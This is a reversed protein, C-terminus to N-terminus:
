SAMGGCAQHCANMEETLMRWLRARAALDTTLRLLTTINEFNSRHQEMRVQEAARAADVAEPPLTLTTTM